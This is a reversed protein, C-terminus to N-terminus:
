NVYESLQPLVSCLNSVQICPVAFHNSTSGSAKRAKQGSFVFIRVISGACLWNVVPLTRQIGLSIKGSLLQLLSNVELFESSIRGLQKSNSTILRFYYHKLLLFSLFRAIVPYDQKRLEGNDDVVLDFPDEEAISSAKSQSPGKRKKDKKGM